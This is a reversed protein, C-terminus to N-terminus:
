EYGPGGETPHLALRAAESISTPSKFGSREEDRAASRLDDAQRKGNRQDVTAARETSSRDVHPRHSSRNPSPLKRPNVVDLRVGARVHHRSSEVQHVLKSSEDWWALPVPAAASRTMAQIPSVSDLGPSPRRRGRQLSAHSADADVGCEARKMPIITDRSLSRAATRRATSMRPPRPQGLHAHAFSTKDCLDCAETVSM